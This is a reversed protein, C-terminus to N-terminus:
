VAVPAKIAPHPDYDELTFDAYKFDFISAVAPNIKMVPLKRPTRSLQQRAQDVLADLDRGAREEGQEVLVARPRELQRLHEDHRGLLALHNLDPPLVIRRTVGTAETM